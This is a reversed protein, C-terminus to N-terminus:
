CVLVSIPKFSSGKNLTTLRTPSNEDSTHCRNTGTTVLAYNVALGFDCTVVFHPKMAKPPYPLYAVVVVAHRFDAVRNHFPLSAM